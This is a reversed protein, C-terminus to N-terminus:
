QSIFGKLAAAPINLRLFSVGHFDDGPHDKGLDHLARQENKQSQNGQESEKVKDTLRSIDAGGIRHPLGEQQRRQNQRRATIFHQRNGHHETGNKRERAEVLWNVTRRTEPM